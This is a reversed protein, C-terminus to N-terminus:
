RGRWRKRVGKGWSEIRRRLRAPLKASASRDTSHANVLAPNIFLRLGRARLAAHLPVHECTEEGREDLGIYRSTLLADRRYIALGGFASDVEIWDDSPAIRVMRSHVAITLAREHGFMARLERYQQWCDGPCWAAHRLAWVDYYADKQNATCVDWPAQTQWCSALAQPTLHRNVGDLDAVMVYDVNAYLPNQSLEDLYRNRCVAIRDTRLPHRGALAGLSISRFDPLEAELARLVELTADSSDSEVILCHVRAFGRAARGLVGLERRLTKQGNRVLGVIALESSAIPRHM